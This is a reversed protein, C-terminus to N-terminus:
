LREVEGTDLSYYAGVIELGNALPGEFEPAQAIQEVTYLVNARIMAEVLEEESETTGEVADYSPTLAATIQDFDDPEDTHTIAHAAHTVAGCHQHGLVVVLPTELAYPGYAVSEAVLPDFTSGATRVTMLDGNGTDFVYQPSVRSDVCGFVIAWPAQGGALEERLTVEGGPHNSEGAAWRANGEALRDWAESASAPATETAGTGGDAAPTVDSTSSEGDSSCAVLSGLGIAGIGGLLGRRSTKRIINSM